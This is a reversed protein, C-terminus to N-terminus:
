FYSRTRPDNRLTDLAHHLRSKVTGPPIGLREAVEDVSLEDAIRLLVVERQAPPLTSLAEALEGPSSAVSDPTALDPLEEEGLNRSSKRAKTAIAHKVVPYLLSTLRATLTLDSLRRLLYEFAEAVADEADDRDSTFRLAIALLKDKNALYLEDFARRDGSQAARWLRRDREEEPERSRM